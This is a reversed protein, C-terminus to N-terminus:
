TKKTPSAQESAITNLAPLITENIEQPYYILSGTVQQFYKIGDKHLLPSNDPELAHQRTKLGYQITIHEHPPCQPSRPIPYKFKLLIDRIYTPM